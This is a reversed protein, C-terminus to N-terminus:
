LGDLLQRATIGELKGLKILELEKVATNINKILKAKKESIPTTKVYSLGKLLELLPDAKSDKIDLLVKM